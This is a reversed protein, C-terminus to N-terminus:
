FQVTAGIMYTKMIGYTWQNGQSEPDVLKMSTFVFPNQANAYLRVGQIGARKLTTSRLNYGLQIFKMRM